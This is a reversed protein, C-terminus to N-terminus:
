WKINRQGSWEGTARDLKGVDWDSPINEGRPTNNRLRSGGWQPWDGPGVALTGIDALAAATADHFPGYRKEAEAPSLRRLAAIASQRELPETAEQSIFGLIATAAEEHSSHGLAHIAALRVDQDPDALLGLLGDVTATPLGGIRGVAGAALRRIEPREDGFLETLEDLAPRAPSGMEALTQLAECRAEDDDGSLLATLPPVAVGGLSALYARIEFRWRNRPHLRRWLEGVLKEAAAPDTPRFERKLKWFRRPHEMEALIRSVEAMQDEPSLLAAGSSEPEGEAASQGWGRDATGWAVLLVFVATRTRGINM